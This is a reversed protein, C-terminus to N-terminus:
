VHSRGIEYDQLTIVFPTGRDAASETHSVYKLLTSPNGDNHLVSVAPEYFDENGNGSMVDWGRRVASGDSGRGVEWSFLNVDAPNLLKEGFYAQYLRGNDGVKLILDTENTSIRITKNDTAKVTFFLALFLFLISIKKM